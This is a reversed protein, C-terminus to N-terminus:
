LHPGDDIAQWWNGGTPASAARRAITILRYVLQIEAVGDDLVLDVRNQSVIVPHTPTHRM